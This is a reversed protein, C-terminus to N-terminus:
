ALRILTDSRRGYLPLERNPKVLQRDALERLRWQLFLDDVSHGADGIDIMANGVVRMWETWDNSCRALLFHDFFDSPASQLAGDSVIRLLSNDKRLRAWHDAPFRLEDWPQRPCNGLLDAMSDPDRVGLGTMSKFQPAILMQADSGGFRDLYWYLGSLEHASRPEIWILRDPDEDVRLQFDALHEVLWDWEGPFGSPLNRNFWSAREYSDQSGIPGWDLCETLDVVRERRRSTGLARRLSGAASSCFLVHIM